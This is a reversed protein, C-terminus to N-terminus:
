YLTYTEVNCSLLPRPGSADRGEGRRKCSVISGCMRDEPPLGPALFGGFDISYRFSKWKVELWAVAVCVGPM